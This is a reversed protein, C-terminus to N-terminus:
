EGKAKSIAKRYIERRETIRPFGEKQMFYEDTTEAILALELAELLDAKERTLKDFCDGCYGYQYVNGCM